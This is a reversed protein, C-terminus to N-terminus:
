RAKSGLWAERFARMEPTLLLGADEYPVVELWRNEMLVLSTRIRKGRREYQIEIRDGPRHAGMVAQIDSQGKVARGDLTIIVDRRDVGAEYLPTAMQTASTVKAGREGFQLEVWGFTARGPYKQRLLFGAHGLLSEFDPGDRGHVYRSFFDEAFGADGSVEGLVNTLDEMTYPMGTAGHRAWVARMYDDLDRDFSSRLTLDLALGLAAGWTYYSIFTNLQNTADISLAQDVFPAQMSMGVASFYGRGPGLLVTSVGDSIRRAYDRDSLHGVRRLLLSGYYSTFGEAFWLEGSMNAEEFDFPELTRPRIREVNWAHFFEHAVVGTRGPTVDRLSMTTSLITSNRHEMGDGYVYPLFDAIFTYTGFDFDPLEGFVSKAEEVIPQVWEVYRDVDAESVNHHVAVRMTYESNGSAVPWQRISFSSLETPSDMFYDLDPATFTWPDGTPGLQTAVKWGSGPLPHFTITIPRDGLGRAWMFVAPMNLHAHTEDIGPYTGDAHDAYLTYSVTVIGDHRAIDWQHPNSRAIELENGRGDYARVSYVNKAFEHLSYRGPSTRSMRVQLTGPPLNPFTVRIEAEHHVANPFSIEYAVPSQGALALLLLARIFPIM